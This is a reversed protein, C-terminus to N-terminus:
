MKAIEDALDEVERHEEWGRSQEALWRNIWVCWDEINDKPVDTLLQINETTAAPDSSRCAYLMAGAIAGTFSRSSEPPVRGAKELDWLVDKTGSVVEASLVGSAYQDVLEFATNTALSTSSCADRGSQQDFHSDVEISVHEQQVGATPTADSENGFDAVRMFYTNNSNMDLGTSM